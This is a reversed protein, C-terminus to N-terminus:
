WPLMGVMWTSGVKYPAMGDLHRQRGLHLLGANGPSLLRLGNKM